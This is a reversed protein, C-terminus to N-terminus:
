QTSSRAPREQRRAELLAAKKTKPCSAGHEGVALTCRRCKWADDGPAQWLMSGCVDCRQAGQTCRWGAYRKSSLPCGRGECVAWEPDVEFARVPCLPLCEECDNCILPDIEYVVPFSDSQSIAGQPCGFECAGCGFCADTIRVAM